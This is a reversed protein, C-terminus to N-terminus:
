SRSSFVTRPCAALSASLVNIAADSVLTFIYSTLAAVIKGLPKQGKHDRACVNGQVCDSLDISARDKSAAIPEGHRTHGECRWRHGSGLPM